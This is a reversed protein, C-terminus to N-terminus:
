SDLSERRGDSIATQQRSDRSEGNVNMGQRLGDRVYGGAM